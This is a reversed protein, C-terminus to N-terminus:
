EAATLSYILKAAEARTTNGFPMFNGNEDGSVAGVASLRNVAEEAYDSIDASDNFIRKEGDSNLQISKYEAARCLIVAADQRTVNMGSGFFKDNIGKIIGTNVGTTVVDCFWDNKLVDEFRCAEANDSTIGFALVTMKVFEERTVYSDPEFILKSRGSIVGKDSLAKISEVAWPVNQLDVFPLSTDVTSDSQTEKVLGSDVKVNSYSGGGGSSGGRGGGTDKNDDSKMQKNILSLFKKGIDETTNLKETKVADALATEAAAKKDSTLSNYAAEWSTEFVDKYTNMIKRVDLYSKSNKLSRSLVEFEFSKNFEEGNSYDAKVSRAIDEAISRDAYEFAEYAATNKYGGKLVDLVEDKNTGKLGLIYDPAGDSSLIVLNAAEEYAKRVSDNTKTMSIKDKSILAKSVANVSVQGVINKRVGLLSLIDDDFLAVLEAENKANRAKVINECKKSLAEEDYYTMTKELPNKAGYYNVLIKYKEGPTPNKLQIDAFFTGDANDSDGKVLRTQKMCNVSNIGGSVDANPNLVVITVWEKNISYPITGNVTLSGHTIDTVAYDIKPEAAYAACFTLALALIGATFIKKIM